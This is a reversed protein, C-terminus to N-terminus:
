GIYQLTRQLGLAHNFLAGHKCGCDSNDDTCTCYQRHTMGLVMPANTGRDVSEFESVKQVLRKLEAKESSMDPLAEPEIGLEIMREATEM